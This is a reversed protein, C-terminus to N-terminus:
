KNLFITTSSFKNDQSVIDILYTPSKFINCSLRPIIECTGQMCVTIQKM